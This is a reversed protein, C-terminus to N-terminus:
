SNLNTWVATSIGFKNSKRSRRSSHVNSQTKLHINSHTKLRKSSRRRKVGTGAGTDACYLYVKRAMNEAQGVRMTKRTKGSTSVTPVATPPSNTRKFLKKGVVLYWSLELYRNYYNKRVLEPLGEGWYKCFIRYLKSEDMVRRSHIIIFLQFLLLQLIEEKTLGFQEFKHCKGPGFDIMRVEKLNRSVVYNSPKIDVCYIDHEIMKELLGVMKKVITEQKRPHKKSEALAATGDYSYYEMVFVQYYKGNFQYNFADYLKPGLGLEGMKYTYEIELRKKKNRKANDSHVFMKIALHLTTKRKTDADVFKGMAHYVDGYSGNGVFDIVKIDNLKGIKGNIVLERNMCSSLVTQTDAYTPTKTTSKSHSPSGVTIESECFRNNM